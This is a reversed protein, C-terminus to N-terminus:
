TTPASTTTASTPVPAAVPASVWDIAGSRRITPPVSSTTAPTTTVPRAIAVRDVTSSNAPETTAPSPKPGDNAPTKARMVRLAWGWSRAPRIEATYTTDYEANLM